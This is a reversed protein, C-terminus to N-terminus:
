LTLPLKVEDTNWAGLPQQEARRKERHACSGHRSSVGLLAATHGDAAAGWQRGAEQNRSLWQEGLPPLHPYLQSPQRGRQFNLPFNLHLPQQLWRQSRVWGSTPDWRQHSSAFILSFRERSLKGQRGQVSVAMYPGLGHIANHDPFSSTSALVTWWLTGLFLWSITLDTHLVETCNRALVSAWEHLLCLPTMNTVWSRSM